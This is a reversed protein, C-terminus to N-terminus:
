WGEPWIDAARMGREADAERLEAALDAPDVRPFGTEEGALERVLLATLGAHERVDRLEVKDLTDARTHVVPRGRPGWPVADDAPESHLQLAPVGARLYPWHDSYPHPREEVALPQEAEALTRRVFSEVAESGHTYAKLNRARGAGDVNVVASVAEPPVRETALAESGTLGTEECSVAGVVVGTELDAAHPALLRAAQVAVTVGCGNDLAGEGVDHADYHALVLVVEDTDPGLRCLVNRATADETVADVRLTAEGGAAAYRRLRDGTEKSVGLGPIAAIEGFRLAGTVPLGGPTENVLVFAAAGGTAAHGFKEVRHVHRDEGGGQEALVIKGSISREDLEDPTGHGADVLPARFDGPPSYPLSIAEFTRPDGDPPGAALDTRGRTWRRVDFRHREVAGGTAEFASAVHDAARREGPQGGMRDGVDTLAALFQEPFPDTWARGLLDTTVDDM